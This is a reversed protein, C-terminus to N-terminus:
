GLVFGNKMKSLKKHFTKEKKNRKLLDYLYAEVTGSVLSIAVAFILEGILLCWFGFGFIWIFYGLIWFLFGSILTYKRSFVDGIYGSPLELVFVFLWSIGQILFFDGTSVGKQNYYLVLVPIAFLASKLANAIMLYRPANLSSIM